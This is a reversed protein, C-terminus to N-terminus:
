LVPRRLIDEDEYPQRPCLHVHTQHTSCSFDLNLNAISYNVSFVIFFDAEIQEIKSNLENSLAM